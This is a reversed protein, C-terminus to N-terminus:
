SKMYQEAEEHQSVGLWKLDFVLGSFNPDVLKFEIELLFGFIEFFRNLLRKRKWLIFKFFSYLTIFRDIINKFSKFKQM